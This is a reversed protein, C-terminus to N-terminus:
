SSPYVGQLAIVFNLTLYPQMNYHAQSGGTNSIDTANMAVTTDAGWQPIGAPNRAMVQTGSPDVVTAAASSARAQHSHAPLENLTLTHSQTGGSSALPRNSLGPGQGKHIAVRGRLDPLRFTTVGDGGYNTGLLSFLALNQNIPLLQGNCFAWGNDPVFGFPLLMIEGLYPTESQPNARAPRASWPLSFGALGALLHGLFHRRPQIQKM